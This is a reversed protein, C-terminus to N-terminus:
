DKKQEDEEKNKIWYKADLRMTPDQKIEEISVETTKVDKVENTMILIGSNFATLFVNPSVKFLNCFKCFRQLSLGNTGKEYKQIQQFTVGIEKAVKSQTIGKTLRLGRLYEGCEKNFNDM